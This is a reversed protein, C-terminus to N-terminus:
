DIYIIPASGSAQQRNHHPTAQNTKTAHTASSLQQVPQPGVGYGNMGGIVRPPIQSALHPPLAFDSWTAEKKVSPKEHYFHEYPVGVAHQPGWPTICQVGSQSSPGYPAYPIVAGSHGFSHNVSSYHAYLHQHFPSEIGQSMYSARKDFQQLAQPPVIPGYYPSTVLGGHSLPTNVQAQTELTTNTQDRRQQYAATHNYYQQSSVREGQGPGASPCDYTTSTLDKSSPSYQLSSVRRPRHAQNGALCEYAVEYVQGLHRDSIGAFQRQYEFNSSSHGYNPHQTTGIYQVDKLTASVTDSSSTAIVPSFPGNSRIVQEIEDGSKGPIEVQEATKPKVSREKSKGDTRKRKCRGKSTTQAKPPGTTSAELHSVEPIGALAGNALQPEHQYLAPTDSSPNENAPAITDNAQAEGIPYQVVPSESLAAPSPCEKDIKNVSSVHAFVDFRSKLTSKSATRLMACLKADYDPDDFQLLQGEEFEAENFETSFDM